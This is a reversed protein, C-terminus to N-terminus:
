ETEDKKEEKKDNESVLKAFCVTRQDIPENSWYRWDLSLGNDNHINLDSDIIERYFETWKM